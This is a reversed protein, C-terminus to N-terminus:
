IKRRRIRHQYQPENERYCRVQILADEATVETTVVEWGHGYNGQVEWEYTTM